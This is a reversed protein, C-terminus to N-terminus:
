QICPATPDPKPKDVFPRVDLGAVRQAVRMAFNTVRSLKGYDIYQPEDTRMHYDQHGGTSMFVIPIGYRAYMYHDSRCYFNSPHGDADYQYDFDFGHQEDSNVSEVLDGLQTSLRRSGILQLYGPGGLELDEAGGRGIMDLNIDAVISELPVTPNDTFHKAGFLGAEEATHWVLLVSRRLTERRAVLVRGMELLAVSGSGDDDAGNRISDLRTDRDGASLSALSALIAQEETPTASREESEAGLPRVLSLYARLSDHPVAPTVPAVHDSHASIVVYEDRLEPDSGRIVAVVNRSPAETDRDVMTLDGTITAGVAGPEIEDIPREFLREVLSESVFAILPGTKPETPGEILVTQPELLFGMLEGAAYDNEAIFIASADQFADLAGPPLGFVRGDPTKYAGLVVVSGTISGSDLPGTSGLDGAFITGPGDLQLETSGPVEDLALPVFEADVDLSRGGVSLTSSWERTRLPVDQFFTGGDGAPSLGFERARQALYETARFHGITGAVRGALSDDAFDFLLRQLRQEEVEQAPSPAVDSGTGPTGTCGSLGVSLVFGLRVGWRGRMTVRM